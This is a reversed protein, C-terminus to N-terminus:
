ENPTVTHHAGHLLCRPAHQAHHKDCTEGDRGWAEESTLVGGARSIIESEERKKGNRGRRKSPEKV